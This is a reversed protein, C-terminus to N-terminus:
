EYRFIQVYVHKKMNQCRVPASLVVLSWVCPIGVTGTGVTDEKGLSFTDGLFFRTRQGHIKGKKNFLAHSWAPAFLSSSTYRLRGATKRRGRKRWWEGYKKREKKGERKKLPSADQKHWCAHVGWRWVRKRPGTARAWLHSSHNVHLFLWNIWIRSSIFIYIYGNPLKM